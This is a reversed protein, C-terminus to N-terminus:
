RNKIKHIYYKYANMSLQHSPVNLRGTLMEQQKKM